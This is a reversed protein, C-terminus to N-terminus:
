NAGPIRKPHYGIMGIIHELNHLSWLGLESARSRITRSPPHPNRTTTESKGRGKLRPPKKTAATQLKGEQSVIYRGTVPRRRDVCDNVTMSSLADRVQFPKLATLANEPTARVPRMPGVPPELWCEMM